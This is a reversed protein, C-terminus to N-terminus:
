GAHDRMGPPWSVEFRVLRDGRHHRLANFRDCAKELQEMMEPNRRHVQFRITETTDTVLRVGPLLLIQNAFTIPDIDMNGFFQRLLYQIITVFGAKLVSLIQDIEVDTQLVTRKSELLAKEDKKKKIQGDLASVKEQLAKHRRRVERSRLKQIELSRQATAKREGQRAYAATHTKGDARLTSRAKEASDLTRKNRRLDVESSHLVVGARKTRERETQRRLELRELQAEIQTISDIVSVNLVRRKGFGHASKFAAAANLQRFVQEQKPWRGFFTDLLFQDSFDERPTNTAFVTASEKNGRQLVVVRTRYPGSKPDLSDNLELWGGGIWDGDRYPDLHRLGEISGLDKVRSSDLPTMFYRHAQDFQKFLAVCDMEGDIVTLRGVMGEGIAEECEGLLPLVYKVLAAHGSFTRIWLPVGAGQHIMVTDVCPMVRGLMAVRGSKHFKKTWLPKTNSDVYLISCCAEKGIWSSALKYWMQAHRELLVGSVGAWKLERVFKALTEPMYDIGYCLGTLWTGRVDTAGDFHGTNTVMPLAMVTLLKARLIDQRCGNICLRGLDKDKRKIDVSEFVPGIELDHRERPANYAPLLRGKEDRLKREEPTVPSPPPFAKTVEHIAESLGETYGLLDDGATLWAFGAGAGLVEETRVEAQQSMTKPQVQATFRFAHRALGAQHLIDQITRIKLEVNFQSVVLGQMETVPQLPSGRGLGVIFGRIEDTVPSPPAHRRDILGRVGSRRLRDLRDRLTSHHLVYRAKEMAEAWTLRQQGRKKKHHEIIKDLLAAEVEAAALDDADQKAREEPSPRKQM